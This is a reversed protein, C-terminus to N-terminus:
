IKEFADHIWGSKFLLILIISALAISGITGYILFVDINNLPNLGNEIEWYDSLGDGDTDADNPNTEYMLVEIGDSLGDGDSDADLPDTNNLYEYLAELGDDDCDTSNDTCNLPNLLYAIEWGDPMGDLDTDHEHPDTNHFYEAVNTLGDSDADNEADSSNSPNFFNSIEWGDLMGDGDSDSNTADSGYEYESLNSLGDDDKDWQADDPDTANFGIQYEWLNPMGDNDEDGQADLPDTINLGMQQEWDNPMGDGDTDIFISFKCIFADYDGNYSPDFSNSTTLFDDRNTSGTVYIWQNEKIFISEPSGGISTSYELLSGNFSLRNIEGFRSLVYACNNDDVYVDIGGYHYGLFSSYNLSSGEPNMKLLYGRSSGGMTADYAEPTVPFSHTSYTLGTIYVFGNADVFVSEGFDYNSGGIFTSFILSSGHLNLKCLFADNEGGNYSTDFAGFTTPFDSSETEGTIYAYGNEDIYIDNGFDNGSGGIYTSYDLSSGESNLKCVFLDYEPNRTSDFAGSTTPFDLSGTRGSLYACGELDVALDVDYEYHTGGIYTSFNLFSGDPNLKCVFVDLNENYTTDFANNTIPFDESNTLGAIYVFGDEDVYISKGEDSNSGGLITSYILSSGDPNLKCLFVNTSNIDENLDISMPFNESSTEGIIYACGEKDVYIDNGYDMGIDGIFTSYNLVPDIILSSNIDYIRDKFESNLMEYGIKFGKDLYTLSWHIPVVEKKNYSMIWSELGADSFIQNGKYFIRLDQKSYSISLKDESNNFISYNMGIPSIKENINKDIKDILFEYKLEYKGNLIVIKFILDTGPYIDRLVLEGYGQLRTEWGTINKGKFFNLIEGTPYILEINKTTSNLFEIKLPLTQNLKPIYVFYIIYNQAFVAIPSGPMGRLCVFEAGSYIKKLIGSARIFRMSNTASSFTRETIVWNSNITPKISNFKKDSKKSVLENSFYSLQIFILFLLGISLEKRKLKIM